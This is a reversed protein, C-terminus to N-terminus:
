RGHGAGAGRQRHPQELKLWYAFLEEPTRPQLSVVTIGSRELNDVLARHGRFIMPRILVLDPKAALFREPGDRYSFSPKKLAAPPYVESTSVGIIEKDMGLSFLNETHAGYLSIIRKFPANFTIGRGSDDTLTQARSPAALALALLAALLAIRKM